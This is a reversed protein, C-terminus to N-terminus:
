WWGVGFVGQVMCVGDGYIMYAANYDCLVMDHIFRVNFVKICAHWDGVYASEMISVQPRLYILGLLMKVVLVGADLGRWM